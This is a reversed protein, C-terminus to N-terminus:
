LKGKYDSVTILGAKEFEEVFGIKRTEQGFYNLMMERIYIKSKM